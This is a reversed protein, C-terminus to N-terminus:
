QHIDHDELLDKASTTALWVALDDIFADLEASAGGVPFSVAIECLGDGVPDTGDTVTRTLKLSAKGQGAFTATPKPSTRKADVYDKVSLTHNPGNYRAIDSSRFTDFDYTKANITLSM